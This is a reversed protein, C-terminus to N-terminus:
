YHPPPAEENRSAVLSPALDLVQLRLTEYGQSLRDIEAQQRTVVDNLEQITQEQFAVRTELEALRDQMACDEGHYDSSLSDIGAPRVWSLM